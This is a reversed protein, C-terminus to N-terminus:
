MERWAIVGPTGLKPSGIHGLAEQIAQPDFALTLNGLATTEENEDGQVFVTGSITTTGTIESEGLVWIIGKFDPNGAINVTPTVNSTVQTTDVVVFSSGNQNDTTLNVSHNNGTLNIWTVGEIPDIDGANSPDDYVHTAAAYIEAGTLGNLVTEFTFYTDPSVKSCDVSVSAMPCKEFSKVPGRTTLVKDIDYKGMIVEIKRTQNRVMGKSFIRWRDLCTPCYPDTESLVDYTGRGLAVPADSDPILVPTSLRLYHKAREVGGDALWFAEMSERMEEASENQLGAHHVSAVGLLTFLFIFALTLVLVSGKEGM